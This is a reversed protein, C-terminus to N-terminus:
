MRRRDILQQLALDSELGDSQSLESMMRDQTQMAVSNDPFDRPDLRWSITLVSPHTYKVYFGLERLKVMIFACCKQVDIQPVGYMINPIIYIIELEDRENAKEIKKIVQKYVRQFVRVRKMEKELRKQYLSDLSVGSNNNNM